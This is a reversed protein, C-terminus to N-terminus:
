RLVIHQFAIYICFGIAIWPAAPNGRSRYATEVEARSPPARRALIRLAAEYLRRWGDRHPGFALYLLGGLLLGILVGLAAETTPFLGLLGMALKADGGGFVRLAWAMLCVIWIVALSGLEGLGWGGNIFQALALVLAALMLPLTLLNPVRRGRLDAFGAWVGAVSGVVQTIWGGNDAPPWGSALFMATVLAVGVLVVGTVRDAHSLAPTATAM